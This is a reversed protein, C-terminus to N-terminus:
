NKSKGAPKWIDNITLGLDDALRVSTAQFGLRDLGHSDSSVSFKLKNDKAITYYDRVAEYCTEYNECNDNLEIAIGRKALGSLLTDWERSSVHSMLPKGKCHRRLTRLPHVVIDVPFDSDILVELRRIYGKLWRIPYKEATTLYNEVHDVGVMIYDLFEIDEAFLLPKGSPYVAMECGIYVNIDTKIRKIKARNKKIDETALYGGLHDSIGLNKYGIREARRIINGVTMERQACISLNSHVHFDRSMIYSFLSM